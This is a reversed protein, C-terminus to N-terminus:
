DEEKKPLPFKECEDEYRFPDASLGFNRAAKLCGTTGDSNNRIFFLGMDASSKEVMYLNRLMGARKGYKKWDAPYTIVKCNLENRAFIDALYDAGRPCAGHIITLWDAFPKSRFEPNDKLWDAMAEVIRYKISEYNDWDRSGSILIRLRRM